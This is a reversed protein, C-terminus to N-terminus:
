IDRPYFWERPYSREQKALNFLVSSVNKDENCLRDIARGTPTDQIVSVMYPIAGFKSKMELKAAEKHPESPCHSM